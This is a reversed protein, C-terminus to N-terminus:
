GRQKRKDSDFAVGHMALLSELYDIYEVDTLRVSDRSAEVASTLVDALDAIERAIGHRALRDLDAEELDFWEGGVRQPQFMRHLDAELRRPDAVRFAAVLDIDFPLKVEFVRRRDEIRNAKGVKYRSLGGHTGKFVYVFGFGMATSNHAALALLRREEVTFGGTLLPAAIGTGPDTAARLDQETLPRALFEMVRLNTTVDM